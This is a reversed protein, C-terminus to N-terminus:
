KRFFIRKMLREYREESPSTLFTKMNCDGLVRIMDMKQDSRVDVGSYTVLFGLYFVDEIMTFGVHLDYSGFSAVLKTRKTYDLDEGCSLFDGALTDADLEVITAEKDEIDFSLMLLRNKDVMYDLMENLFTEEMAEANGDMLIGECLELLDVGVLSLKGDERYRLGVGAEALRLNVGKEDVRIDVLGLSTEHLIGPKKDLYVDPLGVTTGGFHDV